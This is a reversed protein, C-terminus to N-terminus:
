YRVTHVLIYQWSDPTYHSGIQYINQKMILNITVTRYQTFDYLCSFTNVVQGVSLHKLSTSHSRVHYGQIRGTILHSSSLSVSARNFSSCLYDSNFNQHYPSSIGFVRQPFIVGCENSHICTYTFTYTYPLQLTILNLCIDSM